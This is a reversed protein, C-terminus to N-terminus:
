LGEKSETKSNSGGRSTKSVTPKKTRVTTKSAVAAEGNKARLKLLGLLAENEEQALQDVSRNGAEHLVGEIITQKLEDTVDPNGLTKMLGTLPDMLHEMFHQIGGPGGGLHWLLSPGMVGWRLGPGYSVADDAEAVTLVGQQILYLVERYLAAQLRNAVHGPFEKRLYIPKKGISAYFAMAQQIADPSTKAGGVVEVLPIIHPPNFPHGIVCREPRKCDSQIVTMTLGSSSSAIISDPPTADDMDAFLKIKFDPREPGNEQVFDAQALAKKMTSTFALRDRSAGPSLGIDTLAPWAEYIYKRLTGEANPAPDTAIVDFGRALYQAAWSAGIVGTGVIAIRRVPKSFSM